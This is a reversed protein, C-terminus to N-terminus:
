RSRPDFRSPGYADHNMSYRSVNWNSSPLSGRRSKSGYSPSESGRYERRRKEEASKTKWNFDLFSKIAFGVILLAGVTLGQKLGATGSCLWVLWVIAAIAQLLM